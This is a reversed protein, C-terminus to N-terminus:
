CEPANPRMTEKSEVGLGNLQLVMLAAAGKGDSRAPALFKRDRPRNSAKGRLNQNDKSRFRDGTRGKSQFRYPSKWCETRSNRMQMNWIPESQCLFPAISSGTNGNVEVYQARIRKTSSRENAKFRLPMM